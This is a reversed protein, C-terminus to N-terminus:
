EALISKLADGGAEDENGEGQQQEDESSDEHSGFHSAMHEHLEDESEHNEKTVSGDHHKSKTEYRGGGTHKVHMESGSGERGEADEHAEDSRDESLEPPQKAAKAAAYGTGFTRAYKGDVMPM